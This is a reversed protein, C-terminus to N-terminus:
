NSEAIKSIKEEVAHKALELVLSQSIESLTSFVTPSLEQSYYASVILLAVLAEGKMMGCDHIVDNLKECVKESQKRSKDIEERLMKDIEKKSIGM